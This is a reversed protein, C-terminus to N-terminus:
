DNLNPHNKAINRGIQNNLQDVVEDAASIKTFKDHLHNQANLNTINAEHANGVEIAIDSGFQNSIMAQWLIHRYANGVSGENKIRKILSLISLFNDTAM